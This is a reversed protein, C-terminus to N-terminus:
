WKFGEGNIKESIGSKKFCNMFMRVSISNWAKTLLPMTTLVSFNPLQNGKELADIQKKVALSFYKAKLSRIVGQDRPQTISTAIPPLFIEEVWDLAPVDPHTSCNDITLVTKRKQDGFNREIEKVWEEFLESSILKKTTGLLPM